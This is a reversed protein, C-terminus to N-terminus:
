AKTATVIHASMDFVVTGSATVFSRLRKEAHALLSDFQADDLLRGLPSWGRVDTHIWSRISPFRASGKLTTVAPSSIGAGALLSCLTRRDGLAFPAHLAGAVDAGFLQELLAVLAAYGPTADLSDWVAVALRGRQRLVRVMEGLAVRRDTFFMLGFQSVVVDFAGADFPLAEPSGQRWEIGPAVNAAVALMGDSADLGIVAGGPGVRRRVARALVGTGCAVDLVRDGPRLRAADAVREGWPQFIAPVFFQEYVAAATADV